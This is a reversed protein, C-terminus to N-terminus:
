PTPSDWGSQLHQQEEARTLAEGGGLATITGLMAPSLPSGAQRFGDAAEEHGSGAEDLLQVAWHGQQRCALGSPGSRLYFARCYTGDAARFSPGIRTTGAAPGSPQTSLAAELQGRAVLRGQRMEVPLSGPMHFALAGLLVGLVLTAAIAAWERPSWARRRGARAHRAADLSVVGASAAGSATEHLRQPVPEDLVPDFAGRLRRQLERQRGIRAALAADARSDAELRAASGADLEGDVYAHIQADDWVAQGSM